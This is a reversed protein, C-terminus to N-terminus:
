GFQWDEQPEQFKKGDGNSADDEDPEGGEGTGTPPVKARRIVPEWEGLAQSADRGASAGSTAAGDVTLLDPLTISQRELEPVMKKLYEVVKKFAARLPM